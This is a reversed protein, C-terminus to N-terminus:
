RRALAETISHSYSSDAPRNGSQGSTDLFFGAGVVLEYLVIASHHPPFLVKGFYYRLSFRPYLPFAFFTCFFLLSSISGRYYKVKERSRGIGVM